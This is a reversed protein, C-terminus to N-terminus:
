SHVPSGAEFRGASVSFRRVGWCSRDRRLGRVDDMDVAGIVFKALDGNVMHKLPGGM